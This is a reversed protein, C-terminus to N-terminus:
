LQGKFNMSENLALCEDVHKDAADLEDFAAECEEIAEALQAELRRLREPRPIPNSDLYEESGRECLSKTVLVDQRLDAVRQQWEKLTLARKERLKHAAHLKPAIISMRLDWLKQNAEAEAAPDRPLPIPANSIELGSATSLQLTEVHGSSSFIPVDFMTENRRKTM